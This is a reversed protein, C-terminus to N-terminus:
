ALSRWSRRVEPTKLLSRYWKIIAPLRFPRIANTIFSELYPSGYRNSEQFLLPTSGFKDFRVTTVCLVLVGPM